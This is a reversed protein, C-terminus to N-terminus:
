NVVNLNSLSKNLFTKLNVSSVDSDNISSFKLLNTDIICSYFAVFVDFSSDFNLNNSLLKKVFWLSLRITQDPKKQTLNHPNLTRPARTNASAPPPPFYASATVTPTLKSYSQAHFPYQTCLSQIRVCSQACFSAKTCLISKGM